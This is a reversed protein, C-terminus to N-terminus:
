QYPLRQHHPLHRRHLPPALPPSQPPALSLRVLQCVPPRPLRRRRRPPRNRHALAIALLTLTGALMPLAARPRSPALSPKVTRSASLQQLLRFTAFPLLTEVLAVPGKCMLALGLATGAGISGLWPRNRFVALALFANATLVWLALHVDTTASRTFRLFMLSTGFILVSPIVHAPGALLLALCATAILMGCAALLAPWRVQWALWHYASERIVPDTSALDHVTSHTVAAASIWTPLPPKKSRPEDGLMPVWWPGGNRMQLVTQVVLDESDGSFQPWTAPMAMAAFFIAVILLTRGALKAPARSPSRAAAPSASTM